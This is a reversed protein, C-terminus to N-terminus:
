PPPEAQHRVVKNQSGFGFGGDRGRCEHPCAMDAGEASLVGHNGLNTIAGLKRSAKQKM